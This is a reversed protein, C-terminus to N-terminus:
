DPLGILTFAAWDSPDAASEKTSLMASRLAAVKSRGAMMDKYFTTMLGATPADPISWLTMVVSQTGAALFASPLGVFEAQGTRGRVTDCASLTVLDADLKLQLIKGSALFGNAIPSDPDSSQAGAGQTDASQSPALVVAGPPLDTSISGSVFSFTLVSAQVLLGHTAFHMIRASPMADKVLDEQAGSGTMPQVHLLDAIARAEAEAGPLEMLIQGAGNLVRPLPPMKPNGIVLATRTADGRALPRISNRATTLMEHIKLSPTISITHQQIVYKGHDDMLANFPVLYIDGEPVVIVKARPDTPLHQELPGILAEYLTRLAAEREERAPATDVTPKGNIAIDAAGRKLSRSFASTLRGIISNGSKVDSQISPAPLALPVFHVAGKPDIVWAVTEAQSIISYVVFTANRDQALTRIRQLDMPSTSIAPNTERLRREVVVELSRSRSRDAVELAAEYKKQEVLAKILKPYVEETVFRMRGSSRSPSTWFPPNFLELYDESTFDLREIAGRYLAEAAAYRRGNLYSMGLDIVVQISSGDARKLGDLARAIQEAETAPGGNTTKQSNIASSWLFFCTVAALWFFTSVSGTRQKTMPKQKRAVVAAVNGRRTLIGFSRAPQQVRLFRGPPRRIVSM